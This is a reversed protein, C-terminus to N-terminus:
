SGSSPVTLLRISIGRITPMGTNTTSAAARHLKSPCRMYPSTRPSVATATRFRALYRRNLVMVLGTRADAASSAIVSSSARREM